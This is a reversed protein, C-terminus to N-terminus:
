LLSASGIGEIRLCERVLYAIDIFTGSGTGGAIGAVIFVNAHTAGSRMLSNMKNRISDYVIKVNDFLMLRGIQRYGGAGANALVPEIGDYWDWVPNGQEAEQIRSAVVVPLNTVAISCYESGFRDFSAVGWTKKQTSEDTDIALFGVNNPTDSMIKGDNQPLVMRRTVENKIRILMDAGTGGLGIFLSAVTPDAEVRAADYYIGGGKSLLLQEELRELAEMSLPM